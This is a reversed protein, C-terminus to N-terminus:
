NTIGLINCGKFEDDIRIFLQDRTKRFWEEIVENKKSNLAFNYFKQYDDALNGTHPQSKTKYFIIRTANRGDETRYPMPHTINGVQMTDITFYLFSDLENLPIRAGRDNGVIQGGNNASFKDESFEKAAKVFKISDRVILTRISDLFQEATRLDKTDAELKLLIHSSQFENGRRDILKILHFGFPSEIIRSLEGVKMRYVEAEFEPVLSGRSQWSLDGGEKASVYDESNAKAVEAFDEGAIIREKIRELKQRIIQKQEKSVTPLKVIHALEVEANFYPISDKPISNFFKKVEKPTIKVNETIKEEMKQVTLQERLLDRLENKLDNLTKGYLKELKSCDGGVQKCMIDMRQDLQRQVLKDEVIVSDIEAKAVMMKQIILGELVKCRAFEGEKMQGKYLAEYYQAELESKLVIYNDITAVIKDVAEGETQAQAVCVCLAFIGILLNIKKFM